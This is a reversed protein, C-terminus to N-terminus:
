LYLSFNISKYKKKHHSFSVVFEKLGLPSLCMLLVSYIKEYLSSIRFARVNVQQPYVIYGRVDECLAKTMAIAEKMTMSDNKVLHMTIIVHMIYDLPIKKLDEISILGDILFELTQFKEEM